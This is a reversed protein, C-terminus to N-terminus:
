EEIQIYEREGEWSGSSHRLGQGEGGMWGSKVNSKILWKENM